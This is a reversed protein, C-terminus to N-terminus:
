VLIAMCYHRRGNTRVMLGKELRVQVRGVDEHRTQQERQMNKETCQDQLVTYVCCCDVPHVHLGPVINHLTCGSSM